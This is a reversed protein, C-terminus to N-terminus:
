FLPLSASSSPPFPTAPECRPLTHASCRISSLYPPQTVSAHFTPPGKWATSLSTSMLRPLLAHLTASEPATWYTYPLRESQLCVPQFPVLRTTVM